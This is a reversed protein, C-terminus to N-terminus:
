LCRRRSRRRAPYPPTGRLPLRSDGGRPISVGNVREEIQSPDEWPNKSELLLTWMTGDRDSRSFLRPGDFEIRWAPHNTNLTAMPDPICRTYSRVDLIIGCWNQPITYNLNYLMRSDSLYILIDYLYANYFYIQYRRYETPIAAPSQNMRSSRTVHSRVTSQTALISQQFRNPDIGIM